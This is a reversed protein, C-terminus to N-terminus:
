DGVQVIKYAAVMVTPTIRYGGIELVLGPFASKLRDLGREYWLFLMTLVSPMEERVGLRRFKPEIWKARFGLASVSEIVEWLSYMHLHLGSSRYGKFVRSPVFFLYCGNNNLVRWVERLHRRGDTASLHELLNTSVVYDFSGDEFDLARADGPEFRLSLGPENSLRVRARELVVKSVDIGVVTNGQRALTFSMTGNGFGVELVTKGTGIRDAITELLSNPELEAFKDLGEEIFLAHLRDYAQQFEEKSPSGQLVLSWEEELRQQQVSKIKM